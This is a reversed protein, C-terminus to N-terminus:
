AVRGRFFFSAGYIAAAIFLVASIGIVFSTCVLLGGVVAGFLNSGFARATDSTRAFSTAFIIGAFFLPLVTLATALLGGGLGQGLGFSPPLLYSVVLSLALGVYALEVRRPRFRLVAFNAALIMLLIGTIVVSSVIWTSGFLLSLRTLGQFELLMFAAGLSLFHLDLGGELKGTARVLVLFLLLLVGSIQLYLSPVANSKLYLYPWDDTQIRDVAEQTDIADVVWRLSEDLKPDAARARAVREHDGAVYMWKGWQWATAKRAYFVEPPREFARTLVERFRPVLWDSTNDFPMCLVGGPKLLRRANEFSELTYIFHDLQVNTYGSALTHSDLTAFVILDFKQETHNMYARADNIVPEVRPDGYPNEPHIRRGLAVLAPDIEVAVVHGAGGRLAAAVDNGSGAGVILVDDPREVIRYPINYRNYPYIEFDVGSPMKELYERSLNVPRQFIANNIQVNYGLPEEVGPAFLPQWSVKHYPSWALETNTPIPTSWGVVLVMVVGMVGALTRSSSLAPILPLTVALGVCFWSWPPLSAWSVLYFGGIGLLSAFVNVSYAVVPESEDRFHRGIIQGLPFMIACVLTVLLVLCALAVVHGLMGGVDRFSRTYLAEGGGLSFSLDPISLSPVLFSTKVLLTLLVLGGLLWSLRIPRACRLSGLGLGFFATLLALNKFYAFIRVEVSLWRILMIELFLSAISAVLLQILRQRRSGTAPEFLLARDMRRLLEIVRAPFAAALGLLVAFVFVAIYHYDGRIGQRFVGPSQGSSSVDIVAFVWAIGLAALLLPIRVHLLM